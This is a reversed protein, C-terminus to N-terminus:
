RRKTEVLKLKDEMTDAEAALLGFRSEGLLGGPHSSSGGCGPRAVVHLAAAPPAAPLGHMTLKTLGRMCATLVRLMGCRCAADEGEQGEAEEFPRSGDVAADAAGSPPRGGGGSISCGEGGQRRGPSGAEPSGAQSRGTPSGAQSRGTPSGPQSGRIARSGGMKSVATEGPPRMKSLKEAQGHVAALQCAVICCQQLQCCACVCLM